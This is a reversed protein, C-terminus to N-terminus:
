KSDGHIIQKKVPFLWKGRLIVSIIIGSVTTAYALTRSGGPDFNLLIFACVTGALGAYVPLDFYFECNDLLRIKKDEDDIKKIEEIENKAKFVAWIQVASFIIFFFLSSLKFQGSGGSNQQISAAEYNVSSGSNLSFALLILLVATGAWLYLNGSKKDTSEPIREQASKGNSFLLKLSLALLFAVVYRLINVPMGYQSLLKSWSDNLMKRSLTSAKVTNKALRTYLKPNKVIFQIGAPGKRLVSYLSDMGKQGYTHIFTLTDASRKPLSKLTSLLAALKTSNGPSSIIKALFKVQKTNQCNKMFLSFQQWSKSNQALNWIPKLQDVAAKLSAVSIKATGKKLPELVNKLHKIMPETLSGSKYSTKLLSVMPDAPPFVSTLLGLASLSVIFESADDEFVLERTLDRVDGYIFFDALSAGALEEFSNVKGTVFASGLAKLKGLNSDRKKLEEGYHNYLQEAAAKDPWNNTIIEQLLLLAAEQEGKLWLSEAEKRFDFDPLNQFEEIKKLDSLETQKSNPLSLLIVVASLLICAIFIKLLKM